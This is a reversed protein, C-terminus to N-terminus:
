ISRTGAVRAKAAPFSPQHVAHKHASGSEHDHAMEGRILREAYKLDELVAKAALTPRHDRIHRVIKEHRDYHRSMNDILPLVRHRADVMADYLMRLTTQLAVNGSAEAMAEHLEIDFHHFGEPNHINAKMGELARSIRDLDNATARKAALAAAQPEIIQRLEYIELHKIEQLVVMWQFHRSMVRSLSAGQIYTGDGPRAKILGLFMLGKLAERLSSRSVRLMNALEPEPPLRDGKRLEGSRVLGEIRKAVTEMVTERRIPEFQKAIRSLEPARQKKAM